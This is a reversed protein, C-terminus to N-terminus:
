WTQTAFRSKVFQVIGVAAFIIILGIVARKLRMAAHQSEEPDMFAMGARIINFVGLSMAIGQFWTSADKILSSIETKVQQAEAPSAFALVGWVVLLVRTLSFSAVPSRRQRFM